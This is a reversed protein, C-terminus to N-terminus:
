EVKPCDDTVRTATPELELGLWADVLDQDFGSEYRGGSAMLPRRILIPDACMLDLAEAESLQDPRIEGSKVRPATRNFWDVVPKEGFYPRLAEPTWSETLLNRLDLSHGSRTLLGKQRTNSICGPKEYFTLEAM